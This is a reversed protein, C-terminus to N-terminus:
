VGEDPVTHFDMATYWRYNEEGLQSVSAVASCWSGVAMTQDFIVNNPGPSRGDNTKIIRVAGDSTARQFFLGNESHFM